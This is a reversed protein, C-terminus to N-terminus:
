TREADTNGVLNLKFTPDIELENPAGLVKLVFILSQKGPVTVENKSLSYLCTFTTGDNSVVANEAWSM